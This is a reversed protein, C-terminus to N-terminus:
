HRFKLLLFTREKFVKQNAPIFFRRVPIEFGRDATIPM